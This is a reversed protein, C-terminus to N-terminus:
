LFVQFRERRPANRLMRLQIHLDSHWSGGSTGPGTFPRQEMVDMREAYTADRAALPPEHLAHRYFRRLGSKACVPPARFRRWVWIGGAVLASLTLLLKPLPGLALLPTAGLQMAALLVLARPDTLLESREVKCPDMVLVDTKVSLLSVAQRLRARHHGRLDSITAIRVPSSVSAINVSHVKALVTGWPNVFVGSGPASWWGWSGDFTFLLDGSCDFFAVKGSLLGKVARAWPYGEATRLQIEAHMRLVRLAIGVDEGRARVKFTDFLAGFEQDVTYSAPMNALLPCQVPFFMSSAGAKTGGGEVEGAKPSGNAEDSSTAGRGGAQAAALKAAWAKESPLRGEGTRGRGGLGWWWSRNEAGDAGQASPPLREPVPAAATSALTTASPETSTSSAQTTTSRKAAWWPQTPLSGQPALTTTAVAESAGEVASRRAEQALESPLKKPALTTPPATTLPAATTLTTPKIPGTELAERAQLEAATRDLVGLVAGDGILQESHVLASLGGTVLSGLLWRRPHM